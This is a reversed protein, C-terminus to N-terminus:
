GVVKTWQARDMKRQLQATALAGNEREWAEWLSARHAAAVGAETIERGARVLRKVAAQRENANM